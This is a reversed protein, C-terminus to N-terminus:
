QSSIAWSSIAIDAVATINDDSVYHFAPKLGTMDETLDTWMIGDYKCVKQGIVAYFENESVVQLAPALGAQDPTLDTWTGDVGLTGTWKCVKLGIVAYIETPGKFDIATKLDVVVDTYDAWTGGNGLEGTWKCIKVGDVVAYMEVASVYHFEANLGVALGAQDATMRTWATGNWMDIRNGVVAYIENPSVFHMANAIGPADISVDVWTTGDWKKIRDNIIAYIETPSVYHLESKIGAVGDTVSSWKATAVPAADAEGGGGGGGADVSGPRAANKDGVTCSALSGSLLLIPLLTSNFRKVFNDGAMVMPWWRGDSLPSYAVHLGHEPSVPSTMRCYSPLLKLLISQQSCQWVFSCLPGPSGAAKTNLGWLDDEQSCQSHFSRNKKYASTCYPM